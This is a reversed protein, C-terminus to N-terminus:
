FQEKLQQYYKEDKEIGIYDRGTIAAAKITAGSGFFPDMVVDGINTNAEIIDKMLGVPKQTPHIREKGHVIPYNYEATDCYSNFTRKVGKTVSLFYERANSLYNVRANIPVPNTKRWFGIRPQKFGAREAIEKLEGIKFIDYFIVLTGGPVLIRKFEEMLKSVEVSGNDWEGFNMTIKGYKSENGGGKSFNTDRSIIYPPDTLILHVSQSPITKIVEFADGLYLEKM